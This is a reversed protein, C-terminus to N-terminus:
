SCKLPFHAQTPTELAWIVPQWTLRHQSCLPYEPSPLAAAGRESQLGAHWACGRLCELNHRGSPPSDCARPFCGSAPARGPERLGPRRGVQGAGWAQWGTEGKGLGDGGPWAERM